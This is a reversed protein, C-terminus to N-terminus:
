SFNGKGREQGAGPVVAKRLRTCSRLSASSDSRRFGALNEFGRFDKM